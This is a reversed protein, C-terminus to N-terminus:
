IKIKHEAFKSFQNVLGLLTKISDKPHEIYLIVDGAFLFEKINERGIQIGKTDKEQGIVKALVTLVINFLVPSPLCEKRTESRVSFLKLM